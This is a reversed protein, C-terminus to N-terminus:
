GTEALRAPGLVLAGLPPLRLALSAEYGHSPIPRAEVRGLNGVGSGGYCEADSNLLEVYSGEEPVGIRYDERVVPTTSAVVLVSEDGWTRRWALVGGEADDAVVWQFGAQDFDGGHM